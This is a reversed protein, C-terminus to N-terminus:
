PISNQKDLVPALYNGVFREVGPTNLHDHDAFLTIDTIVNTLDYWNIEQKRAFEKLIKKLDKTGPLEGLLTPPLVFVIRAGRKKVVAIIEGLMESYKSFAPKSLKGPYLGRIRQTVAMPDHRKLRNDDYEKCDCADFTWKKLLYNRVYKVLCQWKVGSVMASYFVRYRYPEERIIAACLDENWSEFFLVWPDIFYLVTDATNNRAYFYNLFIKTWVPGGGGGKSLNLTRMKLIKEMRLHNKFKAFSRGHSTGFIILDYRENVPIINVSSETEWNDCNGEMRQFLFIWVSFIFSNLLLFLLGKKFLSVM